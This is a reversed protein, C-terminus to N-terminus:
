SSAQVYPVTYTFPINSAEGAAVCSANEWHVDWSASEIRATGNIQLNTSLTAFAIGLGLVGVSLAAVAVVRTKRHHHGINTIM